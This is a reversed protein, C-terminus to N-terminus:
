SLLADSNAGVYARIIDTHIELGAEPLEAGEVIEQEM